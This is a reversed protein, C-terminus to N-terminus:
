VLSSIWGTGAAIGVNKRGPRLVGPDSFAQKFRRLVKLGPRFDLSLLPAVGM